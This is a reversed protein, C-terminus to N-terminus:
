TRDLKVQSGPVQTVLLVWRHFLRNDGGDGAVGRLGFQGDGADGSRGPTAARNNRASASRSTETSMITWFADRSPVVSM